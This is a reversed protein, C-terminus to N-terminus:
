IESTCIEFLKLTLTNVRDNHHQSLVDYGQKCSLLYFISIIKRKVETYCDTDAESMEHGSSMKRM